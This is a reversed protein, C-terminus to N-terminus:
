SNEKRAAAALIVAVANIVGVATPLHLMEDIGHANSQPGLVGTAVFQVGPYREGLTALFPISGGEGAFGPAQGFAVQSGEDLARSLWPATQPAVWGNAGEVDLEIIADHPVERTLANSIASTAAVHDVTPPLRFSLALTSSPRLVNGAIAVDPLGAAGVTSLTPWWTHRLIREADSEGMARVGPAFPQHAAAVDGFEEAVQQAAIVHSEPIEAWLEPVRIHGTASDEVRDLLHRLVRFSSPVVGSAAGSHQGRELVRATVTVQAIGRLSTTVWLRDYTLAGSDLCILLSVQGLFDALADLHFELDPSGSEESAEILIVCRGLRHGQRYAEEIALVSAFMSYGDDALGRGYLREDRRVPTFPSLGESWDGLPPQKDLHGYLVTTTGDSDDDSAPIDITIVPTRGEPRHIVIDAGPLARSEAWQALLRAADDIHGSESWDAAFVPSICPIKGYEILADLADNEFQELTYTV